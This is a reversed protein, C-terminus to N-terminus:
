GRPEREAINLDRLLRTLAKQYANDDNWHTFDGIHRMRKITRAWARSTEEVADDIKIPVLVTRRELSAREQELATEVEDEVWSSVISASSLVM